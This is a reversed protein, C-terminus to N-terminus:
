QYVSSISRGQIIEQAMFMNINVRNWIKAIIYNHLGSSRAYGRSKLPIPSVTNSSITFAAMDSIIATHSIMLRMFLNWRYYKHECHNDNDTAVVTSNEANHGGISM